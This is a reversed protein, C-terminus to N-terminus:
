KNNRMLSLALEEQANLDVSEDDNDDDSDSEEEDDSSSASSGTDSDNSSRTSQKKEEDSSHTALTVGMEAGDEDSDEDDYLDKEQQKLQKDRVRKQRIREKEEQDDLSKTESLRERIQDMYKEHANELEKGKNNNDSSSSTVTAIADLINASRVNGDDDFKQSKTTDIRIHKPKKEVSTEEPPVLVDYKTNNDNNNEDSWTHKTKVVLLDDDDDESDSDVNKTTKKKQQQKEIKKQLKELKIQEKLQRLKHPVNKKARYEERTVNSLLTKKLFRASPAAALGLSQAFEELANSTNDNNNSEKEEGGVDGVGKINTEQNNHHPFFHSLQFVEKNTQLAISRLYSKFAKKALENIHPNSAVISSAKQTVSFAKSPNMRITKLPIQVEKLQSVMPKYETPTLLLLTKGTFSNRATRGVRHIYTDKDEPCDVQLVWDVNPFDLGRAVLDTCFLACGNKQSNSCRQTFEFFIKTRRSQKIKGHLCSLPIGPQLQSFIEFVHRVQACTSLFIIIKKKLHSKLFSYIMDLKNALPCIMVNQEKLTEPTPAVNEEESSSSDNDKDSKSKKKKDKTKKNTVFLYEPKNLSLTALDKINKTQTASFLLTQRGEGEINSRPFYELIHLLQSRFGMDLIRDAEDLVLMQVYSVDFNPTQELHQLLRGPTAIIINTNQIHHQEQLFERKGGTILGASFDHNFGINRLVSFIQVALERTPSLILAAPGYLPTVKLRFLKEMLPILFSLTKGSGTKASALIDRNALAHPICTNQIPTMTVFEQTTKKRRTSNNKNKNMPIGRLGLLTQRSIPLDKFDRKQDIPPAYGREPTEESIREELQQIIESIKDLLKGKKRTTTTSNTENTIINRKRKGM